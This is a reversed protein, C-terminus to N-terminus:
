AVLADIRARADARIEECAHAVDARILSQLEALTADAYARTSPVRPDPETVTPSPSPLKESTTTTPVTTTSKARKRANNQADTTESPGNPTDAPDFAFVDPSRASSKAGVAVREESANTGRADGANEKNEDKSDVSGDDIRCRITTETGLKIVSGDRLALGDGEAVADEGDVETGNSSGVDRIEWRSRGENFEITAHRQSVADDGKIWVANGRKIRGVAHPKGARLAFTTGEIPGAVCELTLTPTDDEDSKTLASTAARAAKRRPPM